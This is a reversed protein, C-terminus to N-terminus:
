IAPPAARTSRCQPRFADGDPSLGQRFQVQGGRDLSISDDVPRGGANEGTLDVMYPTGQIAFQSAPAQTFTGDGKGLLVTVTSDGSNVVIVDQHGNGLDAVALSWPANGVSYTQQPRFTGDGNGLLVRVTSDEVNAVIIDPHGNGLDAVAVSYPEGGVAYTQEPQFTGDGNGLLM